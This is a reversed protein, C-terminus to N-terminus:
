MTQCNDDRNRIQSWSLVSKLGSEILKSSIIIEVKPYFSFVNSLTTHTGLTTGDCQINTHAQLHYQLARSQEMASYIKTQKYTINSYAASNWQVTYKQKNTPSTPTHPATGNWQINQTQKYTINSHVPSNWQVTYKHNSQLHHQLTRPQEMGCQINPTQKYTMNSHAPSNWQVAWSAEYTVTPTDHRQKLQVSIKTAELESHAASDMASYIKPQNTPSTLTHPATGNCQLTGNTPSTPTHM